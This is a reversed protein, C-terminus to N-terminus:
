CFRLFTAFSAEGEACDGLCCPGVVWFYLCLFSFDENEVDDFQKQKRKTKKNLEMSMKSM